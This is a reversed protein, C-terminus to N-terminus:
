INAKDKLKIELESIRKARRSQKECLENFGRVGCGPCCTGGNAWFEEELEALLDATVAYNLKLNELEVTLPSRRSFIRSLFRVMRSM